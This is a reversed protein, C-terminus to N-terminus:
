FEVNKFHTSLNIGNEDLLSSLQLPQALYLVQPFHFVVQAIFAWHKRVQDGLVQAPLVCTYTIATQMGKSSLGGKCVM